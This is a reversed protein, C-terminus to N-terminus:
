KSIQSILNVLAGNWYITVENSSFSLYEDVYVKAPPTNGGLAQTFSDERDNDPGGVLVGVLNANKAKTLRHHMNQPTNQGYGSIFSMNLSNKGYLYNVQEVAAQKYNEDGFVNYAFMLLIGNNAVFGNSGWSYNELSVQYGDVNVINLITDAQYKLNESVQKYFDKHDKANDNILFLYSGYAGVDRWSTGSTANADKSLMEKAYDLYKDDNTASWMAIAAFFREDIDKDDRYEGASFGEPNTLEVFEFAGTLNAWAKETVALCREAFAPDIDKYVISALAMTSIFDATTTTEAPLIYMQQKDNEPVIDGPFSPTVAKNYVGGWDAQMKMLWEIEYRAEDLIDPVSNGTEPIGLDDTFMTPNTMYAFLLDNVTKTGTKVYRGYDGADHWGGNVDIGGRAQDEYLLAGHEHCVQHGLAGFYAEDLYYGCRQITLFKILDKYTSDYVSDSITFPYSTSVIQSRIQYTGPELVNTFDGYFNKEGTKDNFLGNVIAGTYVIEGSETNVVDFFDGQNYPFTCKKSTDLL